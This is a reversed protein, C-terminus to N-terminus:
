QGGLRIAVTGVIWLLAGIILPRYRM